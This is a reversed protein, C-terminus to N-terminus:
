RDCIHHRGRGRVRRLGTADFPVRAECHRGGGSVCFPRDALSCGNVSSADATRFPQGPRM